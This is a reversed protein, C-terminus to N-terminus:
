YSHQNLNLNVSSCMQCKELEGVTKTIYNNISTAGKCAKVAFGTEENWFEAM